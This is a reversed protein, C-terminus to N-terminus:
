NEDDTAIDSFYDEDEYIDDYQKKVYAYVENKVIDYNQIFTCYVMGYCLKHFFVKKKLKNIEDYDDYCMKYIDIMNQLGIERVIKLSFEEDFEDVVNKVAVKAMVNLKVDFNAEEYNEERYYEKIAEIINSVLM